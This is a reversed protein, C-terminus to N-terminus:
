IVVCNEEYTMTLDFRLAFKPYMLLERGQDKIEFESFIDNPNDDLVSIVTTAIDGNLIERVDRILEETYIYNKSSDIKRLDGLVFLSVPVNYFNFQGAEYGDDNIVHAGTVYFFSSATLTDNHLVEFYEQSGNYVKPKLGTRSDKFIRARNFSKEIWSVTALSLQLTNIVADLEIANPITPTSPNITTM